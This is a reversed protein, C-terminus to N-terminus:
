AFNEMVKIPSRRISTSRRLRIIQRLNFETDAKNWFLFPFLLKFAATFITVLKTFVRHWRTRFIKQAQCSTFLNRSPLFTHSRMQLPSRIWNVFPFDVREMHRFTREIVIFYEQDFLIKFPLNLNRWARLFKREEIKAQLYEFAISEFLMYDLNKVFKEM